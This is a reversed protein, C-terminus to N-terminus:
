PALTDGEEFADKVEIVDERGCWRCAVKEITQDQVEVEEESLLGSITFHYFSQTRTTKVVDFRTLNGCAGCEYRQGPELAPAPM